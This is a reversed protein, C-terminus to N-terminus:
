MDDDAMRNDALRQLRTSQEDFFSQAFSRCEGLANSIRNLTAAVGNPGACAASVRTARDCVRSIVELSPRLTGLQAIKPALLLVVGRDLAAKHATKRLEQLNTGADYRPPPTNLAVDTITDM